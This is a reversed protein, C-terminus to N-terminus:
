RGMEVLELRALAAEVRPLHFRVCRPSIRVVPLVKREVLKEIFRRSVGLQNALEAKTLYHPNSGRPSQPTDTTPM